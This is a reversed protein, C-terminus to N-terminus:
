NIVPVFIPMKKCINSEILSGGLEEISYFQYRNNMKAKIYVTIKNREKDKLGNPDRTYYLTYRLTATSGTIEAKLDACIQESTKYYTDNNLMIAVDAKTINTKGYYRDINERWYSLLEDTNKANLANYYGEVASAIGKKNFSNSSPIVASEKVRNETNANAQEPKNKKNIFYFVAFIM